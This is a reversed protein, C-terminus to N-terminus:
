AVLAPPTTIKESDRSGNRASEFASQATDGFYARWMEKGAFYGEARGLKMTWVVYLTAGPTLAQCFERKYEMSAVGGQSFVVKLNCLEVCQDEPENVTDFPYVPKEMAVTGDARLFRVTAPPPLVGALRGLKEELAKRTKATMLPVADGRSEPPQKIQDFCRWIKKWKNYSAVFRKDESRFVRCGTVPYIYLNLPIPPM